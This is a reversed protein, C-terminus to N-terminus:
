DLLREASNKVTAKTGTVASNKLRVRKFRRQYIALQRDKATLEIVLDSKSKFLIRFLAPILRCILIM